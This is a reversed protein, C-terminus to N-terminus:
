TQTVAQIAEQATKVVPCHTLELFATQKEQDRRPRATYGKVEMPLWKGRYLVLLDVPQGIIWVKAGIQRLAGVIESQNLDPRTKGRNFSL